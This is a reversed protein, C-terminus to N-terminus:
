KKVAKKKNRANAREALRNKIDALKKRRAAIENEKAAKKTASDDAKKDSQESM